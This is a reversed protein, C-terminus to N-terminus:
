TDYLTGAERETQQQFKRRKLCQASFELAARGDNKIANTHSQHQVAHQALRKAHSRIKSEMKASVSLLPEPGPDGPESM